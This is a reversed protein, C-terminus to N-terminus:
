KKEEKATMDGRAMEALRDFTRREILYHEITHRAQPLNWFKRMEEAHESNDNVMREVEADIDADTVSIKEEEAVRTLVLSRIVRERASERLEDRYQAMTKGVSGLYDELGRMGEKFNKAHDEITRDLEQEVLVPPFEV